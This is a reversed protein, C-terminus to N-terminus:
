YLITVYRSTGDEDEGTIKLEDGFANVSVDMGQELLAVYKDQTGLLGVEVQPSEIKFSMTLQQEDNAM